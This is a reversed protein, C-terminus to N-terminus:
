RPIKYNTQEVFRGAKDVIWIVGTAKDYGLDFMSIKANPGLHEYKFAHVSIGYIDMLAKGLYNGKPIVINGANAAAAHSAMEALRGVANPDFGGVVTVTQVVIIPQNLIQSKDYGTTYFYEFLDDSSYDGWNKPGFFMWVDKEFTKTGYNKMANNAYKLRAQAEKTLNWIKYQDILYPLERFFDFVGNM